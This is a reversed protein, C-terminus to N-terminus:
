RDQLVNSSTPSVLNSATVTQAYTPSKAPLPPFEGLNTFKNPFRNSLPLNTSFQSIQTQTKPSSYRPPTTTKPKSSSPSSQTKIAYDIVNQIKSRGPHTTLKYNQFSSTM